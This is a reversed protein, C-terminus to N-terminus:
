PWECTDGSNPRDLITYVSDCDENDSLLYHGWCTQDTESVMCWSVAGEWTDPILRIRPDTELVGFRREALGRLIQNLSDNKLFFKDFKLQDIAPPSREFDCLPEWYGFVLFRDDAFDRSFFADMTLYDSIDFLNAVRRITSWASSERPAIQALANQDEWLRYRLEHFMRAFYERAERLDLIIENHEHCIMRSPAGIAIHWAPEWCRVMWAYNRDTASEQSWFQTSRTGLTFRIGM